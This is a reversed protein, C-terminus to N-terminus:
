DHSDPPTATPQLSRLDVGVARELAALAQGLQAENMILGLRLTLISRESDLLEILSNKGASYGAESARYTDEAQPLLTDRYLAMQERYSKAQFWADRVDSQIQLKVGVLNERSAALQKRAMGEEARLKEVHLPINVSFFVMAADKGNDPPNSFINRNVQTYDIGLTLDPFRDKRALSLAIQDRAVAVGAQQLEQRYTEALPQLTDETPLEPETPAERVPPVTTDHPRALLANLRAVLGARQQALTVLRTHLEDRALRAKLVDQLTTTAAEYSRQATGIMQELLSTQEQLVATSRDVRYLEFYLFKAQQLVESVKARYQWMAILAEQTALDGAESLKGPYPIKQAITVKQNMAGVRTEVNAVFYGYTLMPDPWSRAIASRERSAEWRLRAAQVMPGNMAETLLANLELQSADAAGLRTFLLAAFVGVLSVRRWMRNKRSAVIM